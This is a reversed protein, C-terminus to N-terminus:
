QRVIESQDVRVSTFNESRQIRAEKDAFGIINWSLPSLFFFRDVTIKGMMWSHQICHQFLMKNHVALEVKRIFIFLGLQFDVLEILCLPSWNQEYRGGLSWFGCELCPINSNNNNFISIWNMSQEIYTAERCSGWSLASCCSVPFVWCFHWSAMHAHTPRGKICQVNKKRM